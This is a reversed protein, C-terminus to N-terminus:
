EGDNEGEKKLQAQVQAHAAAIEAGANAAASEVSSVAVPKAPQAPASKLKSRPPVDSVIKGNEITVIRHDFQHVLELDHTVVVVTAGLANIKDFLAPFFPISTEPLSTRM